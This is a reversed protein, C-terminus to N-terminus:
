RVPVTVYVTLDGRQGIRELHAAALQEMLAGFRYTRDASAIDSDDSTTLYELGRSLQLPQPVLAIRYTRGAAESSLRLVLRLPDMEGTKASTRSATSAPEPPRGAPLSAALLTGRPSHKELGKALATLPDGPSGSATFRLPGLHAPVEGPQGRRLADVALLIRLRDLERSAGSAQGLYECYLSDLDGSAPEWSTIERLANSHQSAIEGLDYIYGFSRKLEALRVAFGNWPLRSPQIQPNPEDATEVAGGEVTLAGSQSKTWDTFGSDTWAAEKVQLEWRMRQAPFLRAVSYQVALRSGAGHGQDLMLWKLSAKREYVPPLEEGDVAFVQPGDINVPPVNSAILFAAEPRLREQIASLLGEFTRATPALVLVYFPRDPIACRPMSVFQATGRQARAESFFLRAGQACPKGPILECRTGYYASRLAIVGLSWGRALLGDLAQFVPHVGQGEPSSYVGDTFLVLPRPESQRGAAAFLLDDQNHQGIFLSDRRFDKGLGSPRATLIQEVSMEPLARRDGFTYLDHNPLAGAVVELTESFRTAKLELPEIYGAMSLTVDVVFMPRTAEALEAVSPAQARDGEIKLEASEAMRSLSPRCGATGTLLVLLCLLILSGGRRILERKWM